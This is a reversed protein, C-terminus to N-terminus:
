EQGEKERRAGTRLTRMKQSPATVLEGWDTYSKGHKLILAM